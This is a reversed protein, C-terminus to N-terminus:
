IRLMEGNLFSFFFFCIVKKPSYTLSFFFFALALGSLLISIGSNQILKKKIWLLFCLQLVNRSKGHTWMIVPCVNYLFVQELALIWHIHKRTPEKFACSLLPGAECMMPALFWLLALKDWKHEHMWEKLPKIKTKWSFQSIISTDWQTLKLLGDYLNSM